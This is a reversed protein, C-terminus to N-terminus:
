SDGDSVGAQKPQAWKPPRKQLFAQGGERGEDSLLAQAFQGAAWDLLQDTAGQSASRHLLVKTSSTANPAVRLLSQTFTTLLEEYAAEDNITKHVLGVALAAQADITEGLLALRRAHTLGIRAVVFPAIQAPVIGLGTEPMAFKASPLAVAYDSVCALGLGGGLVAGELICSIPKPYQDVFKLLHGFARNFDEATQAATAGPKADQQMGSIDGGACFHGNAGRLLVGRTQADDVHNELCVILEDVMQRNMANRKEPRNLTVLLLPGAMETMLTHFSTM